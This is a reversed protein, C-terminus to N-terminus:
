APDVYKWVRKTKPKPQNAPLPDASEDVGGDGRVGRKKAQRGRKTVGGSAGKGQTIPLVSDVPAAQKKPQRGRRKRTAQTAIAATKLREEFEATITLEAQFPKDM